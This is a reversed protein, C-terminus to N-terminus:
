FLHPQKLHPPLKWGHVPCRFGVLHATSPFTDPWKSHEEYCPQDECFIEALYTKGVERYERHKCNECDYVARQSECCRSDYNTDLM